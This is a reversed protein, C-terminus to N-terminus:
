TQPLQVPDRGPILRDEGPLLRGNFWGAWLDASRSIQMADHARVFLDRLVCRDFAYSPVWLWVSAAAGRVSAGARLAALWLVSAPIPLFYLPPTVIWSGVAAAALAGCLAAAAALREPSTARTAALFALFTGLAVPAVLGHHDIRGLLSFQIAGPMVALLATLDLLAKRPM